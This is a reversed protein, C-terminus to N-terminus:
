GSSILLLVFAFEASGMLISYICNAQLMLIHEDKIALVWYICKSRKWMSLFFLVHRREIHKGPNELMLLVSDAHLLNETVLLEFNGPLTSVIKKSVSCLQSLVQRNLTCTYNEMVRSHLLPMKINYNLVPHSACLISLFLIPLETNQEQNKEAKKRM